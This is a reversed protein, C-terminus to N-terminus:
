SEFQTSTCNRLSPREFKSVVYPKGEKKLKASRGRLSSYTVVCKKADLASIMSLKNEELFHEEEDHRVGCWLVRRWVAPLCCLFIDFFPFILRPDLDRPKQAGTLLFMIDNM